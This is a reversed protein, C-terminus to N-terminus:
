PREMRMVQTRKRRRSNEQDSQRRAIRMNVYKCCIVNQLFVNLAKENIKSVALLVWWLSALNKYANVSIVISKSRIEYNPDKLRIERAMCNIKQM